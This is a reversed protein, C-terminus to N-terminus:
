RATQNAWRRAENFGLYPLLALLVLEPKLEALRDQRGIRIHDGVLGVIGAVLAEDTSAPLRSGLPARVQIFGAFRGIMREYRQAYDAQETAELTLSRAVGPNAIAFDVGAHVGAAVQAPWESQSACADLVATELRTLELPLEGSEMSTDV